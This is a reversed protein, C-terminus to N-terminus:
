SEGFGQITNEKQKAATLVPMHKLQTAMNPNKEAIHGFTDIGIDGFSASDKMEGIGLSDLVITFIRKYKKYANMIHELARQSFLNLHFTKIIIQISM